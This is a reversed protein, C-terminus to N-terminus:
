AGPPILWHSRPRPALPTPRFHRDPARPPPPARPETGPSPAPAATSGGELLAASVRVAAQLGLPLRHRVPLPTDPPQTLRRGRRQGTHAPTPSPLPPRKSGGSPFDGNSAARNQKETHQPSPPPTTPPEPTTLQQRKLGPLEGSASPAQPPGPALANIGARPYLLLHSEYFRVCRDQSRGGFASRHDPQAASGLSATSHTNSVLAQRRMGSQYLHRPPFSPRVAQSFITQIFPLSFPSSQHSSM